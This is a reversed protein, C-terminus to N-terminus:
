KKLNLDLVADRDCTIIGNEYKLEAVQIVSRKDEFSNKPAPNLKTRGPHTFYYVYAKGNHVVVDCHGGMVQDDLGKGPQELIRSSQKEWRLLDKSQYIEIGKWADVMMFYRDMWRFVKPGEGRSAVAKGRDEWHYLDKSDAFWISKGDKENNYWMRWVGGPLPYVCADIVKENVLPIQSQYKWHSLDTSTLHWIVRPHNWDKFIGPVYTLYMHYVGAAYIVEPAWYTGDVDPLHDISATGKYKWKKGDKSTAIGIPTGHVWAVGSSDKLTARRNTYFMWWIKTRHHQIIVPDAAGHFVPDDYLPKPVSQAQLQMTIFSFLLLSVLKLKM